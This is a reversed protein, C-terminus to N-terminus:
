ILIKLCFFDKLSCKWISSQGWNRNGNRTKWLSKYACDQTNKKKPPSLHRPCGYRYGYGSGYGHWHRLVPAIRVTCNATGPPKEALLTYALSSTVAFHSLTHLFCTWATFAPSLHFPSAFDPFALELAVQPTCILWLYWVARPAESDTLWETLLDSVHM